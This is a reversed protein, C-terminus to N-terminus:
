YLRKSLFDILSQVAKGRHSIQNKELMTLQAFSRTFGDSRFIPDYGFGGDGTRQILIEGTAVGEFQYENGDLILAIVTRFRASRDDQHNLTKLLKDMNREDSRPEGAYRGSYVGPEGNLSNVELGTDDAFCDVGYHEKVYRAKQFANHELTDGTEPLEELCGIAELSVIEIQDGLAAKVEEIKKHNNTAFCIKM